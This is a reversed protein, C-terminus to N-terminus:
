WKEFYWSGVVPDVEYEEVFIRRGVRRVDDLHVLRFEDNAELWGIINRWRFVAPTGVNVFLCKFLILQPEVFAAEQLLDDFAALIGRTSSLDYAQLCDPLDHNTAKAWIRVWSLIAPPYSILGPNRLLDQPVWDAFENDVVAHQELEPIIFAELKIGHVAVERLLPVLLEKLCPFQVLRDFEVRLEDPSMCAVSQIENSLDTQNLLAQRATESSELDSQANALRKANRLEKQTALNLSRELDEKRSKSSRLEENRATLDARSRSLETELASKQKTIAQIDERLQQQQANAATQAAELQQQATELNISFESEQETMKDGLANKEMEMEKIREAAERIEKEGQAAQQQLRTVQETTEKVERELELIRARNGAMQELSRRLQGEQEVSVTKRDNELREIWAYAQNREKEVRSVQDENERVKKELKQITAERISKDREMQKVLDEWEDGVQAFKEGVAKQEKELEEIRGFAENREQEISAIQRAQEKLKNKLEQVKLNGDRREKELKSKLESFEGSLTKKDKDTASITEYAEWKERELKDVQQAQEQVKNKLEQVRLDGDCREKETRELKGKLETFAGSLRKTDKELVTITEYAETKEGKLKEIQEAQEKLQHQLEQVEDRREKETRELRSRLQTFEDSLTKNDKELVTIREYAETKEENLKNIQEANEKSQAFEAISRDWEMQKVIGRWETEEGKRAKEVSAIREYAQTKEEELKNIQVAQEGLQKEVKLVASSRDREREALLIRWETEKEAFKKCLAKNDRAMVELREQTEGKDQELKAFQKIAEEREKQLKQIASDGEGETQNLKMTWEKEQTSLKDGLERKERKLDEITAERTLREESLKEFRRKWESEKLTLRADVAKKANELRVYENKAAAQEEEFQKVRADLTGNVTALTINTQNATQLQEKLSNQTAEAKSFKDQLVKESARLKEILDEYQQLKRAQEDSVQYSADRDDITLSLEEELSAISQQATKHQSKTFNFATRLEDLEGNLDLINKLEQMVDISVSDVPIAISAGQLARAVTAQHEKLAGLREKAEKLKEKALEENKLREKV